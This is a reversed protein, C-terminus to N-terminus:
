AVFYVIASKRLAHDAMQIKRTDDLRHLLRGLQWPPNLERKGSWEFPIQLNQLNRGLWLALCHKFVGYACTFACQNPITNGVTYLLSERAVHRYAKFFELTWHNCFLGHLFAPTRRSRWERDYELRAVCVASCPL